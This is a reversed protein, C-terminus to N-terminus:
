LWEELKEKLQRYDNFQFDAQSSPNKKKVYHATRMGAGRAGLVDYKYSNGVFLIDQPEEGIQRAADLFGRPSPKLAGCDETSLRVNWYGSLGLREIKKCLPFDSLLGMKVGKGQCFKLMDVVYPVPGVHNFIQDFDAIFRARWQLMKERSEHKKRMRAQLDAQFSVFDMGADIAANVHQHLYHRVKRFSLLMPWHKLILPIGPWLVDKNDYLTGDIDFLVAKFKMQCLKASIGQIKCTEKCLKKM